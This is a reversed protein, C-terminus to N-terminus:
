RAEAQPEFTQVRNPVGESPETERQARTLRKFGSGQGWYLGAFFGGQSRRAAGSSPKGNRSTRMGDGKGAEGPRDNFATM